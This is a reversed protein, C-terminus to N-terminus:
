SNPAYKGRINFFEYQGTALNAKLGQSIFSAQPSNVDVQQSTEIIKTEPYATLENTTLVANNNDQLKTAVVDGSLIVKQNNDFGHATKSFFTASKKGEEFLVANLNNLASTQQQLNQELEDIDAQLYLHGKENTQTIHINTASYVMNQSSDANLKQAKGSFYYYGGSLAAIVIAIIYLARTDM